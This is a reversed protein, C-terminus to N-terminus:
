IMLIVIVVIDTLSTPYDINGNEREHNDADDAM